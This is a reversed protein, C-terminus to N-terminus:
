IENAYLQNIINHKTKATCCTVQNYMCNNMKMNKEMHGIGPYKTCDGTSHLLVKSNIWRIHSQKCRSIGFDWDEEGEEGKAVVLRNKNNGKLNTKLQLIATHTEATCSHSHAMVSPTLLLALIGM